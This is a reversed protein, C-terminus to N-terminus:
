VFPDPFNDPEPTEEIQPAARLEDILARWYGPPIDPEAQTAVRDLTVLADSAFPADTVVSSFSACMAAFATVTALTRIRPRAPRAPSVLVQDPEKWCTPDYEEFTAM